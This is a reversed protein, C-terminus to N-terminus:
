FHSFAYFRVKKSLLRYAFFIFLVNKLFSFICLFSGEKVVVQVVDTPLLHGTYVLLKGVVAPVRLAIQRVLMMRKMDDYEDCPGLKLFLVKSLQMDWDIYFKRMSQLGHPIEIMSMLEDNTHFSDATIREACTLLFDGVHMFLEHTRYPKNVGMYLKQLMCTYTIKVGSSICQTTFRQILQNKQRDTLYKPHNKPINQFRKIGRVGDRVTGNFIRMADQRIECTYLEYDLGHETIINMVTSGIMSDTVVDDGVIVCLILIPDIGVEILKNSLLQLTM